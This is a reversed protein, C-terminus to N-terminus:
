GTGVKVLDPPNAHQLLFWCADALDDIYMCERKPAGGGGTPPRKGRFPAPAM